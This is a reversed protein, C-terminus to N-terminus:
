IFAPAKKKVIVLKQTPRTMAIYLRSAAIKREEGEGEPEPPDMLVVADYEIGKVEEIARVSIQSKRGNRTLRDAEAKGVEKELARAVMASMREVDKKETILAATGRSSRVFKRACEVLKEVAEKELDESEVKELSGEVGRVAKVDESNLGEKKAFKSAEEM